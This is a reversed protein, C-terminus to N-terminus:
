RQRAVSHVRGPVPESAVVVQAVRELRASHEQVGPEIRPRIRDRPQAGRTEGRAERDRRLRRQRYVYTVFNSGNGRRRDHWQLLEAKYHAQLTTVTLSWIVPLCIRITSSSFGIRSIIAKPRRRAPKSTRSASSQAAARALM